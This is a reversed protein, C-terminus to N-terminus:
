NKPLTKSNALRESYRQPQRDQAHIHSTPPASSKSHPNSMPTQTHPATTLSTSIQPIGINSNLISNGPLPLIVPPTVAPTKELLLVRDHLASADSHQKNSTKNLEERLMAFECSAAEKIETLNEDLTKCSARAEDVSQSFKSTPLEVQKTTVSQQAELTEVRKTLKDVLSKLDSAGSNPSAQKQQTLKATNSQVQSHLKSFEADTVPPAQREFERRQQAKKKRLVDCESFNSAHDLGCHKCTAKSGCLGEHKRKLCIPCTEESTCSFTDHDFAFCKKCHTLRPNHPLSKRTLISFDSGPVPIQKRRLLRLYTGHDACSLRAKYNLGPIQNFSVIPDKLPALNFNQSTLIHPLEEPRIQRPINVLFIQQYRPNLPKRGRRAQIKTNRMALRPPWVFNVLAAADEPSRLGLWLDGKGTVSSRTPEISTVTKVFANREVAPLRHLDAINNLNSILVVDSFGTPPHKGLPAAAARSQKPDAVKMLQLREPHVLQFNQALAAM